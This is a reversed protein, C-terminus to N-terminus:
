FGFGIGIGGYSSGGSSAGFGFHIRPKVRSEREKPWLALQNCILVPFRYDADGVLGSRVGSFQGTATVLRGAAYDGGELYGSQSAIFRGISPRSAVPRGKDDLPYALIEVESADHLNKTTIIIGGWQIDHEPVSEGQAVEKPILSRDASPIEPASSCAALAALLLPISRRVPMM